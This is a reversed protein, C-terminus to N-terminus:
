SVGRSVEGDGRRRVGLLMVSPWHSTATSLCGIRVHPLIPKIAAQMLIDSDSHREQM